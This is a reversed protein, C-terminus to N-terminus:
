ALNIVDSVILDAKWRGSFNNYCLVVSTLLLRLVVVLCASCSMMGRFAGPAVCVTFRKQCTFLTKQSM